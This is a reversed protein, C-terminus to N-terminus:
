EPSQSLTASERRIVKMAAPLSKKVGYKLLFRPIPSGLDVKTRYTLRTKSPGEFPELLLEGTVSRVNGARSEWRTKYIGERSRAEDAFNQIIYWRNAVPWPMNFYQFTYNTWESRVARPELPDIVRDGLIKYVDEVKKKDRAENLVNGDVARCDILHPFDYGKWENARIFLRWVVEPPADVIGEMTAWVGKKLAGGDTLVEGQRLRHLTEEDAAASGIFVLLLVLLCKRTTM